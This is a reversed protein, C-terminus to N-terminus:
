RLWYFVRGVMSGAFLTIVFICLDRLYPGSLLEYLSHGPKNLLQWIEVLCLPLTGRRPKPDSLDSMSSPTWVSWIPLIGIFFLVGWGWLVSYIVPSKKLEWM